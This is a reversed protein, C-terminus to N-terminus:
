QEWVTSDCEYHVIKKEYQSSIDSIISVTTKQLGLYIAEQASVIFLSRFVDDHKEHTSLTLLHGGTINRYLPLYPANFISSYTNCSRVVNHKTVKLKLQQSKLEPM